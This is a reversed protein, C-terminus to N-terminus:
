ASYEPSEYWVPSPSWEIVTHAPIGLALTIRRLTTLEPVYDQKEVLALRYADLGATLALDTVTFGAEERAARLKETDLHYRHTM